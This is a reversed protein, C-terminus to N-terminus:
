EPPEEPSGVMALWNELHKTREKVLQALANSGVGPWMTGSHNFYAGEVWNRCLNDWASQTAAFWESCGEADALKAARAVVAELQARAKEYETHAHQNIEYQSLPRDVYATQWLVADLGAILMKVSDVARLAVDRSSPFRAAAEHALVHRAQFVTEVDALLKDVDSIVPPAQSPQENRESPDVATRLLQKVDGDLVVGFASLVHAVSNCPVARAVVEGFTFSSGHFWSIADSVAIKEKVLGAARSRYPDGEDILGVLTGRVFTQLAAIAAVPAHRYLEPSDERGLEKRLARLRDGVDVTIVDWRGFVLRSRVELL